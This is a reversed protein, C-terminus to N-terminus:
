HPADASPETRLLPPNRVYLLAANITSSCDASGLADCLPIVCQSDFYDGEFRVEVTGANVVVTACHFDLNSITANDRAVVTAHPLITFMAAVAISAGSVFAVIVKIM